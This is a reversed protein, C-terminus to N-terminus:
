RLILPPPLAPPGAVPRVAARWSPAWARHRRQTTTSELSTEQPPVAKVFTPPTHSDAHLAGAEVTSEISPMSRGINHGAFGVRLAVVNRRSRWLLV